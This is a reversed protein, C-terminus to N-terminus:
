EISILLGVGRQVAPSPLGKVLKKTRELRGTNRQQQQQVRYHCCFVTYVKDLVPAGYMTSSSLM